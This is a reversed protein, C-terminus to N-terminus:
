PPIRYARKSPSWLAARCAPGMLDYCSRAPARRLAMAMAMISLPKRIRAGPFVHAAPDNIIRLEAMSHLVAMAAPVAVAGTTLVLVPLAIARQLMRSGHKQGVKDTKGTKM